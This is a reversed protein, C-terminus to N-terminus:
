TGLQDKQYLKIANSKLIKFNGILKDCYHISKLDDDNLIDLRYLEYNLLWSANISRVKIAEIAASLNQPENIIIILSLENLKKKLLEDLVSRFMEYDVKQLTYILWIEEWEYHKEICDFLFDKIITFILIIDIKSRHQNCIDLISKCAVPISAANERVIGLLLTLAENYNLDNVLDSMRSSLFFMSGKQLDLIEFNALKSYANLLWDPTM